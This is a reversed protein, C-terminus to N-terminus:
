PLVVEAVQVIKRRTSKKFEAGGEVPHMVHAHAGGFDPDHHEIAMVVGLGLDESRLSGARLMVLSQPNGSEAAWWSRLREAGDSDPLLHEVYVSMAFVGTTADQVTQFGMKSLRATLAAPDMQAPVEDPELKPSYWYHSFARLLRVDDPITTPDDYRPDVEAM